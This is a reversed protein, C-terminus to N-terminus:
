VEHNASFCKLSDKTKRAFGNQPSRPAESAPSFTKGWRELWAQFMLVDWLQQGWSERGALHEAWCARIPSPNLYGEERLRRESLLEEAWPRLPGRLWRHIPVGFGKKPRDVLELPVYKYLVQRLLWKGKGQQIKMELPVRWAFEVVRHDLLPVRAELSVAMSARDLKTLIDNPLYGVMDFYMMRLMRGSFRPWREPDTLVTL